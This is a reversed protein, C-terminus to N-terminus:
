EESRKSPLWSFGDLLLLLTAGLVLLSTQADGTTPGDEDSPEQERSSGCGNGSSCFDTKVKSAYDAGDDLGIPIAAPRPTVPFSQEGHFHSLIIADISDEGHQLLLEATAKKVQCFGKYLLDSASCCAGFFVRKLMLELLFKIATMLDPCGAKPLSFVDDRRDQATFSRIGFLEGDDISQLCPSDSEDILSLSSFEVDLPATMTSADASHQVDLDFSSDSAGSNV